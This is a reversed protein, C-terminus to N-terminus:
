RSTETQAVQVETHGGLRQGLAVLRDMTATLGGGGQAAQVVAVLRQNLEEDTAAPLRVVAAAVAGQTPVRGLAPFPAEETRKGDAGTGLRLARPAGLLGGDGDLLVGVARLPSRGATGREIRLVLPRDLPLAKGERRTLFEGKPPPPGEPYLGIAFRGDGTQNMAWYIATSAGILFLFTLLLLRQGQIIM